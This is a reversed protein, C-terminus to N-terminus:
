CLIWCPSLLWYCAHSQSSVTTSFFLWFAPLKLFGPFPLLLPPSHPPLGPCAEWEQFGMQKCGLPSLGRAALVRRGVPSGSGALDSVCHWRRPVTDSDRKGRKVDKDMEGLTQCSLRKQYATEATAETRSVRQPTLIIYITAAPPM